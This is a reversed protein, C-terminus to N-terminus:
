QTTKFQKGIFIFLILGAVGIMTNDISQQSFRKGKIEVM